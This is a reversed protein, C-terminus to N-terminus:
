NRFRKAVFGACVAITFTSDKCIAGVMLERLEATDQQLLRRDRADVISNALLECECRIYKVKMREAENYTLKKM